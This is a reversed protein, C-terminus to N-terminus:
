YVRAPVGVQNGTNAVRAYDAEFDTTYRVFADCFLRSDDLFAKVPEGSVAIDLEVKGCSQNTDLDHAEEIRGATAPIYDPIWGQEVYGTEGAERYSDFSATVILDACGALLLL